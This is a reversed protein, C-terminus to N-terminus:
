GDSDATKSVKGSEGTRRAVGVAVRGGGSGYEVDVVKLAEEIAKRGGVGVGVAISGGNWRYEIDIVKLAKEIHECRTAWLPESVSECAPFTARFPM